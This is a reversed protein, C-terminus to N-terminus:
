RINERLFDKIKLVSNFFISNSERKSELFARLNHFCKKKTEGHPFVKFFDNKYVNGPIISYDIKSKFAVYNFSLQDRISGNKVEKWWDEMLNSIKKSNHKRIIVGGSILKKSIFGEKKYKEVQDIIKKPSDKKGKLCAKAEQYVSKRLPHAFFAIENKGMYRSILEWPNVKPLHTGDVWISYEYKKPLHRHPRIKYDKAELRPNNKEKEKCKIIKWGKAKKQNKDTFCIYDVGKFSPAEQLNDIGGFIATYVLLPKKEM